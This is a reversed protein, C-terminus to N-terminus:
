QGTDTVLAYVIRYFAHSALTVRLQCIHIEISFLESKVATSIHEEKESTSTRLIIHNGRLFDGQRGDWAVM